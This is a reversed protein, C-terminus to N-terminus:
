DESEEYVAEPVLYVTGDDNACISGLYLGSPDTYHAQLTYDESHTDMNSEVNSFKDLRAQFEEKSVEILDWYQESVDISDNTITVNHVM